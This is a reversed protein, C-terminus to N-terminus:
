GGWSNTQVRAGLYYFYPFFFTALDPPTVLGEGFQNSGLDAFAIKADPAMGKFANLPSNGEVKGAVTGCVHTGQMYMAAVHAITLDLDVRMAGYEELAVAHSFRM